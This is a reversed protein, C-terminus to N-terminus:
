EFRSDSMANLRRECTKLTSLLQQTIKEMDKYYTKVKDLELEDITNDHSLFKSLLGKGEPNFLIKFVKVYEIHWQAHLTELEKYFLEGVLEEIHNEEGYLWQGFDCITKSVPCQKQSVKKYDVVEGAEILNQLRIMQAEHAERAKKLSELIKAKNM